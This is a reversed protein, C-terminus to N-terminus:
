KVYPKMYGLSSRFKSNLQPQDQVERIRRGESGLHQIVSM